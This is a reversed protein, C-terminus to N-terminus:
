KSIVNKLVPIRLRLNSVTLTQGPTVGALYLLNGPDQALTTAAITLRLAQRTPVTTAQSLMRISVTHRGPQLATGGASVVTTGATLVTVVHAFTGSQTFTVTPSGFTEIRRRTTAVARVIKGTAGITRRGSLTYALTKTPPLGAFSATKRKWPYGAIEVRPKKDIGNPVGQLFHDFWAQVEGLAYHFDPSPTPAPAHGFDGLYVRTPGRLAALARAAHTLDFVFDRRGQLWFVPMKLNGILTATSREATVERLLPLNSSTLLLDRAQVIEPALRDPAIANLFGFVVGGKSLGQPILAYDLDLWTAVPVITAFPVGSAAARLMAGGGYSVGSAGIRKADVGPRAALWDFLTRVDGVEPPGDLDFLGGSDGHARADYTLVVYGHPAFFERAVDNASTNTAGEKQKRSLGLGHLLMIAPWGGAPPTAAPEFLTAAIPTGDAMPLTLDHETFADARAARAGLLGLLLACCLVILRRLV